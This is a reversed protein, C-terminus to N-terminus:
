INKKFIGKEALFQYKNQGIKSFVIGTTVTQHCPNTSFISM